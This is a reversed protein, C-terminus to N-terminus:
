NLTTIFNEFRFSRWAQEEIDYYAQLGDYKKPYGLGNTNREVVKELLTGFAERVTGDKKRYLFHATGNMLQFQLSEISMSTQLSQNLNYGRLVMSRTRDLVALQNITAKMDNLILINKKHEKTRGM